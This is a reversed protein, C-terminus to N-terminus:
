VKFSSFLFYFPNEVLEGVVEDGAPEKRLVEHETLSSFIETKKHM